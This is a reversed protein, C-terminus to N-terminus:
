VKINYMAAASKLLHKGLSTILVTLLLLISPNNPCSNDMGVIPKGNVPFVSPICSSGMTMMTLWEPPVNLGRAQEFRSWLKELEIKAIV